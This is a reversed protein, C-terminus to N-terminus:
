TVGGFICNAHMATVTSTMFITAVFERCVCRIIRFPTFLYSDGSSWEKGELRGPRLRSLRALWVLSPSHVLPPSLGLGCILRIALISIGSSGGDGSLQAHQYIYTFTSYETTFLLVLKTKTICIYTSTVLGRWVANNASFSLAVLGCRGFPM